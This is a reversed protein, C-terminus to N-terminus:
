WQHFSGLFFMGGFAQVYSFLGEIEAERNLWKQVKPEPPYPLWKESKRFVDRERSGDRRSNLELNTKLGDRANAKHGLERM